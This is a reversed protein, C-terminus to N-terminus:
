TSLVIVYKICYYTNIVIIYTMIYKICYCTSVAIICTMLNQLVIIFINMINTQLTNKMQM